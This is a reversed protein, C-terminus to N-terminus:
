FLKFPNLLAKAAKKPQRLPNHGGITPAGAGGLIAAALGKKKQSSRATDQEATDVSSETQEAAPATPSPSPMKPTKFLMGM